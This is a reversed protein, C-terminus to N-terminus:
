RSRARTRLTGACPLRNVVQSWLPILGAARQGVSAARTLGISQQAAANLDLIRYRTDIVIVSDTMGEILADRAVPMIDLFGYRFLGWVGLLGSITILVPGLDLHPWPSLKTIYLINGILPVLAAILLVGMQSRQLPPSQLFTRFAIATALLFLIYNYVGQIWFAAGYDMALLSFGQSTDLSVSRYILGHRETTWVLALIVLPVVAFLAISRRSLMKEQNTYQLVFILWVVPVPLFAAYQLRAWFLKSALDVAALEIAYLIAWVTLVLMLVTLTTAGPVARRRWALVALLSALIASLLMPFVYPNAQWQM